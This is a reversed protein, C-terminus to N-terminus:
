HLTVYRLYYDKFTRYGSQHFHIVITLVESLCVRPTRWRRCGGESILHRQWLPESQLCFDDVDCFLPVIEM